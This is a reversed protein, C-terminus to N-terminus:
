WLGGEGYKQALKNTVFVLILGVVSQFLGVATAFSFRGEILAMRYTFTEFVDAVDYVVPSYLMFIQEFGNRLISGLRLIFLVTITPIICPITIYIMKKFMGAGDIRAAEYMETDIGTIAALYVITGWGAEKWIDSIVLISRFYNPDQLFAIKSGSCLEIIYNIAGNSPSLINIIIGSLVVWSIFHPLYMVTQSAKKFRPMKIENLLVSLIIPIPFGWLLRLISIVLSNKFVNLFGDSTFLYEFNKFGVWPSRFFGLVPSYEQFAIVVGYMPFYCFVLFYIMGPVLFIYLWFNQKLYGTFGQPKKINKVVTAKQPLKVGAM